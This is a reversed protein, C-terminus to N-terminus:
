KKRHNKMNQTKEKWNWWKLKEPDHQQHNSFYVAARFVYLVCRDVHAGITQELKNYFREPDKYKFDSVKTVGILRLKQAIRPGIGPVSELEDSRHKM